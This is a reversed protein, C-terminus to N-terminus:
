LEYLNVRQIFMIMLDKPNSSFKREDYGKMQPILMDYIMKHLANLLIDYVQM